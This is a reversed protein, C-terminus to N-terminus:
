PTGAAYTIEGATQAELSWDWEGDAASETTLSSITCNGSYVGADTTGAADGIQITFAIPQAADFAAQLDPLKETSIHGSATITGTKQGGLSFAFASGFVPKTMINKSQELSIVSGVTSFDDANLTITAEYGPIFIPLTM